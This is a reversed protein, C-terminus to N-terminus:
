AAGAVGAAGHRLRELARYCQVGVLVDGMATHQESVPVGLLAAVANLGPMEGDPFRDPFLAYALGCVDIKRHHWPEDDALGARRFVAALMPVDFSPNAAILTTVIGDGGLVQHLRGLGSGDDVPAGALRQAYGTMELAAPDAGALDHPPVFVGCAGSDVDYWAAETVQHSVRLGTTEVDVFVRRRGM